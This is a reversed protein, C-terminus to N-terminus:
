QAPGRVFITAGPVDYVVRYDVSSRLSARLGACCDRFRLLAQAPPKPVYVHTFRMGRERTQEELCSVDREACLQLKFYAEQQKTYREHGLWEYGQVTAVSARRALAPFWEGTPDTSWQPARTRDGALVLFRSDPPTSVAVWHMAQVQEPELAHLPSPRGWDLGASLASLVMYLLGAMLTLEPLRSRARQQLRGTSEAQGSENGTVISASQAPRSLRPLILDNLAIGFQLGRVLGDRSSFPCHPRCLPHHPDGVVM